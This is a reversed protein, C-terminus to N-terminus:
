RVSFWMVGLGLLGFAVTVIRPLVSARVGAMKAKLVQTAVM